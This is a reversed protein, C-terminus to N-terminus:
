SEIFRVRLSHFTLIEQAPQVFVDISRQVGREAVIEFFVHGSTVGALDDDIIDSFGDGEILCTLRAFQGVVETFLEVGDQAFAPVESVGGVM